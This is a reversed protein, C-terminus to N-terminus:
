YMRDKIQAYITNLYYPNDCVRIFELVDDLSIDDTM